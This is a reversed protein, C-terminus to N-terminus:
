VTSQSLVHSHPLSASASSCAFLPAHRSLLNRRGEGEDRRLGAIDLLGGHYTMPPPLLSPNSPALPTGSPSARPCLRQAATPNPQRHPPLAQFRQEENPHEAHQLEADVASAAAAEPRRQFAGAGGGHEIAGGGGGAGCLRITGRLRRRGGGSSVIPVARATAEPHTRPDYLRINSEVEGLSNKAICRYSGVDQRQFDRIVLVMRVEFMSRSVGQVDYKDSSIVM